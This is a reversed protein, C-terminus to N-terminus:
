LQDFWKQRSIKLKLYAFVAVQEKLGREGVRDVQESFGGIRRLQQSFAIIMCTLSSKATEHLCCPIGSKTKHTKKQSRKYFAVLM